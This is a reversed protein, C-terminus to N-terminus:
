APGERRPSWLADSSACGGFPPRTAPARTGEPRDADAGEYNVWFEVPAGEFDLPRAFASRGRRTSGRHGGVYGSRAVCCRRARRRRDLKIYATVLGRPKTWNNHLLDNQTVGGPSTRFLASHCTAYPGPATLATARM